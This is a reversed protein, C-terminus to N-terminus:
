TTRRQGNKKLQCLLQQHHTVTSQCHYEFQLNFKEAGGNSISADMLALTLNTIHKTKDQVAWKGGQLGLSLMRLAKRIRPCGNDDRKL